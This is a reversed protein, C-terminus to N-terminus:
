DMQLCFHTLGTLQAFCLNGAFAYLNIIESVGAKTASPAPVEEPKQCSAVFCRAPRSTPFRMQGSHTQPPHSDYLPPPPPYPHPPSRVNGQRGNFPPGQYARQVM